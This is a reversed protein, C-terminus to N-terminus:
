LYIAKKQRGYIASHHAPFSTQNKCSGINKRHIQRAAKFNSAFDLTFAILHFSLVLSM